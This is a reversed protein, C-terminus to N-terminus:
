NILSVRRSIYRGTHFVIMMDLFERFSIYGSKDKDVLSFMSEVFSSTPKLALAEAFEAKTLECNLVDFGEKTNVTELGADVETGLSFVQLYM